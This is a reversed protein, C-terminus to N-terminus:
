QPGSWTAGQPEAKQDRATRMRKEAKHAPLDRVFATLQWLVEVPVRRDYALRGHRDAIATFLDAFGDGHKWQTDGLNLVGTAGEAHCGGCGYWGFYRGGQAVQYVNAQYAPIRPDANSIPRTQPATPGLQRAESSCGGLVAVLLPAAWCPARRTLAPSVPGPPRVFIM